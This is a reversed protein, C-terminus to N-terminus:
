AADAQGTRLWHRYAAKANNLLAFGLVDLEVHERTYSHARHWPGLSRELQANMSEATPRYNYLRKYRDTGPPFPRVNEARNFGNARDEDTTDYRIRITAGSPAKLVGYFTSGGKKRPRHEIKKEDLEVLVRKGNQTVDVLYPRGDIAHIPVEYTTGTPTTITATGAPTDKPVRKTSKSARVKAAVPAVTVLGVGYLDDVHIGRMANDYLVALADLRQKAQKALRVSTAAEGGEGSRVSDLGTIITENPHGNRASMLAFHHGFVVEDAGNTYYRADADFRRLKIEGTKLVEGNVTYKSLAALTKGDGILCSSLPPNTYGASPDDCIGIAKAMAAATEGFRRTAEVWFGPTAALRDRLWSYQGRTMPPVLKLGAELSLDHEKYAAALRRRVWLMKMTREVARSSEEVSILTLYIVWLWSPHERNRGRTKPTFEDILDALDFVQPSELLADLTEELNLAYDDVSM